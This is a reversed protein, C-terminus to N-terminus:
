EDKPRLSDQWDEYQQPSSYYEVVRQICYLLESDQDEHDVVVDRPLLSEYAMQLEQRVVDCTQEPSLEIMPNM